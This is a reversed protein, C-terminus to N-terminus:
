CYYSLWNLYLYITIYLSTIIRMHAGQDAATSLSSVFVVNFMLIFTLSFMLIFTLSFMLIFTLSFMLIFTLSFMLIFTLSFMLIFTLSFMLIFTLSFMLIFTLSFMLIFTLVVTILVLTLSFMLIFTLVLTSRLSAVKLSTNKRMRLGGIWLDNLLIQCCIHAIFERHNAAVALCLCTQKSFNKLEYTLLQQTYDDDIKYCHELLELGLVQFERCNFVCFYHIHFERFNFVCFYDM